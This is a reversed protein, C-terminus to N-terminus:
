CPTAASRVWCTSSARVTSFDLFCVIKVPHLVINQFTILRTLLQTLLASTIKIILISRILYSYKYFEFIVFQIM